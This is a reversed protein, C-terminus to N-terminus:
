LDDEDSSQDDSTDDDKSDDSEMDEWGEFELDEFAMEPNDSEHCADDKDSTRVDKNGPLQESVSDHPINIDRSESSMYSSSFQHAHFHGVGLGWHYRM